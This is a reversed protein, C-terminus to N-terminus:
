TDKLIISGIMCKIPKENCFHVYIVPKCHLTLAKNTLTKFDMLTDM